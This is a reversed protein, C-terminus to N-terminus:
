CAYKNFGSGSIRRLMKGLSSLIMVSNSGGDVVVINGNEFVAVSNPLQINKDSLSPLQKLNIKM